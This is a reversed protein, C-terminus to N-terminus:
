EKGDQRIFYIVDKGNNCCKIKIRIDLDLVQLQHELLM